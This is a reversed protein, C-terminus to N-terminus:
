IKRHSNSIEGHYGQGKDHPHLDMELRTSQLHSFSTIQEKCQLRRKMPAGDDHDTTRKQHQSGGQNMPTSYRMVNLDLQNPEIEDMVLHTLIGAM